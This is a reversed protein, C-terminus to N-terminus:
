GPDAWVDAAAEKEIAKQENKTLSTFFELGTYKEIDDVSVLFTEHPYGKTSSKKRNDSPKIAHPYIFAIVEPKKPDGSERVIIKYFGDPVAVPTEAKEIEGLWLRPTQKHFM